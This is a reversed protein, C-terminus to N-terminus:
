WSAATPSPTSRTGTTSWGAARSSSGSPTLADFLVGPGMPEFSVTGGRKVTGLRAGYDQASGEQAGLVLALCSLLVVPRCWRSM